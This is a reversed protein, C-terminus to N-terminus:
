PSPTTRLEWPVLPRVPVQPRIETDSNSSVPSGEILTRIPEPPPPFVEGCELMRSSRLAEERTAAASVPTLKITAGNYAWRSVTAYEGFRGGWNVIRRPHYGAKIVLLRSYNYNTSLGFPKDDFEQPLIALNGDADTAANIKFLTRPTAGHGTLTGEWADACYTIRADAIPGGDTADVFRMHIAPTQPTCGALFIFVLTVWKRM